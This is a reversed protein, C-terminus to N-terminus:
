HVLLVDCEARRAVAEDVGRGLLRDLVGHSGSGVVIMAADQQEAVDLLRDAADGVEAVFEARIGRPALAARARELLRRAIEEPEPASPIATDPLRAPIPGAAGGPILLPGPPEIASSFGPVPMAPEVCVIVLRAGFAEAEDAARELARTAGDTGDYGAIIANM